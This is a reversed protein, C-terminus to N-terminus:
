DLKSPEAIKKLYMTRAREILAAKREHFLKLREKADPISTSSRAKDNRQNLYSASASRFKCRYILYISFVLLSFLFYFIVNINFLDM